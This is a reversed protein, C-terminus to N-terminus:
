AAVHLSTNYALTGGAHHLSRALATAHDNAQALHPGVTAWSALDRRAQDALRGVLEAIAALDTLVAVPDTGAFLDAAGLATRADTIHQQPNM